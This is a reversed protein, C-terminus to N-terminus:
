SHPLNPCILQQWLSKFNGLTWYIAWDPWVSWQYPLRPINSKVASCNQAVNVQVAGVILVTLGGLLFFIIFHLLSVKGYFCEDGYRIQSPEAAAPIVLDGNTPHPHGHVPTGLHSGNESGPGGGPSLGENIAAGAANMQQIQGSFQSIWVKSKADVYHVLLKEFYSNLWSKCRWISFFLVRSWFCCYQM